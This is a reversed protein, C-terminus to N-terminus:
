AGLVRPIVYRIAIYALSLFFVMIDIPSINEAGLIGAKVEMKGIALIALLFLDAILPTTVFNMPFRLRVFGREEQRRSANEPRDRIRLTSLSTWFANWLPLPIFIPIHFPFLAIIDTGRLILEKNNQVAYQRDKQM